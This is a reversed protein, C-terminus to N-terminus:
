PLAAPLLMPSLATCAIRRNPPHGLLNRMPSKIMAQYKKRRPAWRHNPLLTHHHTHSLSARQSAPEIPMTLLSSATSIPQRSPSCYYSVSLSTFRRPRTLDWFFSLNVQNVQNVQVLSGRLAEVRRREEEAVGRASACSGAPM